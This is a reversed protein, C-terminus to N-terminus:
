HHLLWCMEFAIVNRFLPMIMWPKSKGPDPEYSLGFPIKVGRGRSSQRHEETRAFIVAPLGFWCVVTVAAARGTADTAGWGRQTGKGATSARQGVQRSWVKDQLPPWSRGPSLRGSKGGENWFSPPLRHRRPEPPLPARRTQRRREGGVQIAAVESAAIWARAGIVAVECLAPAAVECGVSCDWLKLSSWDLELAVVFLAWEPDSERESSSARERAGETIPDTHPLM